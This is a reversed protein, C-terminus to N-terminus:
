QTQDQVSVDLQTSINQQAPVLARSKSSEEAVPVSSVVSSLALSPITHVIVKQSSSFLLLIDFTYITVIGKAERVFRLQGLVVDCNADAM